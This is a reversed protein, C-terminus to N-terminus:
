GVLPQDDLRTQLWALARRMAHAATQHRVAQRDGDFHCTQTLVWPTQAQGASLRMAWGFCVTGVPKDPLGGDPGAIGSVAMSLMVDDGALAGLAMERVVAESVAGQTQLLDPSVGLMEIKAQNAYPVYGRSFWRSSGPTETLAAAILGGTCSEATSILGGGLSAVQEGLRAALERLEDMGLAETSGM